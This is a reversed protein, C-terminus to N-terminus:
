LIIYSISPDFSFKRLERNNVDLCEFAAQTEGPWWPNNLEDFALIAGKPMRPLLTELAVKTPEYLDFDLFLLSVMFYPNKDLFSPITECADGKILFVKQFNNLYRNEDYHDILSM